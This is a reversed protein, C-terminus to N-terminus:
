ILDFGRALIVPNHFLMDIVSTGLAIKRTNAAVFTFTELPDLVIQYFTPLNGDPTASYPTQPKLPWLLSEAVWLSDLGREKAIKTTEIVNKKTAAQGHNPLTIDVKL